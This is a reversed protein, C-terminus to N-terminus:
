GSYHAEALTKYTLSKQTRMKEIGMPIFGPGDPGAATRAM